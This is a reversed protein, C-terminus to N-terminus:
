DVGEVNEKVPLELEFTEFNYKPASALKSEIFSEIDEETYNFITSNKTRVNAEIEIATKFPNKKLEEFKEIAKVGSDYAKNFRNLVEVLEEPIDNSSFDIKSFDNFDEIFMELVKFNIKINDNLYSLAKAGYFSNNNKMNYFYPELPELLEKPINLEEELTYIGMDAFTIYTYYLYIHTLDKLIDNVIFAIYTSLTVIDSTLLKYTALDLEDLYKDSLELYRSAINTRHLADKKYSSSLINTVEDVSTLLATLEEDNWHSNLTPYCNVIKKNLQKYYETIEESSLGLLIEEYDKNLKTINVM